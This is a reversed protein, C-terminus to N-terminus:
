ILSNLGLMVINYANFVLRLPCIEKTATLFNRGLKQQNQDTASSQLKQTIHIFGPVM